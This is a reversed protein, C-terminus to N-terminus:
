LFIRYLCDKLINIFFYAFKCFSLLIIYGTTSYSSCTHHLNSFLNFCNLIFTYDFFIEELYKSYILHCILMCICLCTINKKLSINIMRSICVIIVAVYFCLYQNLVTFTLLIQRMLLSYCWLFCIM